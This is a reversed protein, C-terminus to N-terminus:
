GCVVVIDDAQPVLERISTLIADRVRTQHNRYQVYMSRSEAYATLPTPQGITVHVRCSVSDAGSMVAILSDVNQVGDVKKVADAIREHMADTATEGTILSVNRKILFMSSAALLAAICLSFVGDWVPNGTLLYLGYGGAALMVGLLDAGNEVLLALLVPNKTAGDGKGDMGRRLGKVTMAISLGEGILAAAMIWVALPSIEPAAGTRLSHIGHVATLVSGIILMMQAAMLSWFFTERGHGYPHRAHKPRKSRRYGFWLLIPNTTDASSHAAEAFLSPSGTFTYATWKLVTLVVNVVLTIVTARRTDGNGHHHGHHHDVPVEKHFTSAGTFVV